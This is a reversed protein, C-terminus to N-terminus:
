TDSEPVLCAYGLCVGRCDVSRGSGSQPLPNIEKMHLDNDLVKSRKMAEGLNMSSIDWGGWVIESPDVMPLMNKLPSNAKPDNGLKVTSALMVSGWLLKFAQDRGQNGMLYGTQERYSWRCLHHKVVLMRTGPSM